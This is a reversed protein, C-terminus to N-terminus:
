PTPFEGGFNFKLNNKIDYYVVLGLIVIITCCTQRNKTKNITKEIFIMHKENTAVDIGNEILSTGDSLQLEQIDGLIVTLNKSRLSYPPFYKFMIEDNGFKILTGNYVTKDKLILTDGLCVSILLLPIFKKILHIGKVILDVWGGVFLFGGMPNHPGVLERKYGSIIYTV